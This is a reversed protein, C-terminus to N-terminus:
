ASPLRRAMMGAGSGEVAERVHEAVGARVEVEGRSCWLSSGDGGQIL